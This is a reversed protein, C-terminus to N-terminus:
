RRRSFTVHLNEILSAAYRKVENRLMLNFRNPQVIFFVVIVSHRYRAFYSRGNPLTAIESRIPRGIPRLLRNVVVVVFHRDCGKSEQRTRGGERVRAILIEILTIDLSTVDIVGAM